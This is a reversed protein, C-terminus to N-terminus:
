APFGERRAISIQLRLLLLARELFLILENQQMDYTGLYLGCGQQCCSSLPDADRVMHYSLILLFQWGGIVM